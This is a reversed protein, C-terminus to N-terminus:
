HNKQVGCCEGGMGDVGRGKSTPRRLDLWPDLEGLPTQPLARASGWGFKPNQRMKAKFGSM